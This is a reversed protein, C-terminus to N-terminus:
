RDSKSMQTQVAVERAKVPLSRQRYWQVTERIAEGLPTAHNGFVREYKSHDIVFSEEFEYLMENVERMMPSFLSLFQIGLKPAASLKAPTGVEAFVLEVFQRTTVTPANPVHWVEGLAEERDGLTVLGKAFDRIFTYTHLADPNGLVQAPQGKLAAAFVGEGMVSDTVNPGYFNSARGITARVKGSRHATMLTEALQSRIRGKRGTAKDPLHEHILGAVPGYMYLNDGFVLKAGVAAVSDVISAMIPPLAQAWETYPASVCHYVVAAGQCAQKLSAPNTADAKVIEVGSPLAARGQRNVARVRKGQRWLEQVVATGLQGTGLVVQLESNEVM